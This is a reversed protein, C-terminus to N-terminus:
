IAHCGDHYSDDILPGLHDVFVMEIISIPLLRMAIPIRM